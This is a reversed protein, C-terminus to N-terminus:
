NAARRERWGEVWNYIVPIVVLSILASVFLGGIVARALPAQTEGGEGMGIAVPSLALMTTATTMLIPRLRRQVSVKVADFVKMGKEVRMLNIYDVLVIANNVVIGILVICGLFSQMNFTTGTAALMVLVGIAAFPISFMIYLPQLFSEFQGAMVMYVLVIALLIGVLLSAFTKQQEESEGKILVSFGEPMDHERIQARLDDTISGLDSEGTLDATLSVVRRQNERDITLPSATHRV